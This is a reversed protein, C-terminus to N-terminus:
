NLEYQIPKLSSPPHNQNKLKAITLTMYVISCLLKYLFFMLRSNDIDIIYSSEFLKRQETFYDKQSKLCM